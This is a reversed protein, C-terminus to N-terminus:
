DGGIKLEIIVNYWVDVFNEISKFFINELSKQLM